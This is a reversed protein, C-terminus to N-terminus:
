FNSTKEEMFDHFGFVLEIKREWELYLEFDNKGQFLPMTMKINRLFKDRRSEGGRRRKTSRNPYEEKEEEYTNQKSVHM